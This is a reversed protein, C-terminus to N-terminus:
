AARSPSSEALAPQPLYDVRTLEECESGCADCVVVLCLQGADRLFRTAGSHTGSHDCSVEM